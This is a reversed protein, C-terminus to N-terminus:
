AGHNEEEGMLEALQRRAGAEVDMATEPQAFWAALTQDQNLKGFLQQLNEPTFVGAAGQEWYHQDLQPAVV